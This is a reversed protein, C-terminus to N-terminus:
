YIYVIKQYGHEVFWFYAHFYGEIDKVYFDYDEYHNKNIYDVIEKGTM